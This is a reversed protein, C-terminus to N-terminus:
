TDQTTQASQTVPTNSTAPRMASWWRWPMPPLCMLPRAETSAAQMRTAAPEPTTPASIQSQVRDWLTTDGVLDIAGTRAPKHGDDGCAEKGRQRDPDDGRGSLGEASPRVMVRHGPLGCRQ